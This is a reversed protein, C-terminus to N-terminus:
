ANALSEEEELEDAEGAGNDLDETGLAESVTSPMPATTDAPKSGRKIKRATFSEEGVSRTFEYGHGTFLTADLASMRTRIAQKAATAGELAEESEHMYDAYSAAHKMLIADKINGLEPFTTETPRTTRRARTPGSLVREVEKRTQKKKQRVTAKVKPKGRAARTTKKAM